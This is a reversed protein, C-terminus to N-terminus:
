VTPLQNEWRVLRRGEWNNDLRGYNNRGRRLAQIGNYANSGNRNHNNNNSPQNSHLSQPDILYEKYKRVFSSYITIPKIVDPVTNGAKISSTIIQLKDKDNKPHPLVFKLPNQTNAVFLRSLTIPQYGYQVKWMFTAKRLTILQSFNLIKHQKYLPDTHEFRTKSYSIIRIAKKMKKEIPELFSKKTCSWNILNYNVHSQVFSYYMKLLCAEDVFYRIRYIMGIGRALKTKIHQIQTKWNLKTDIFVGLYKTSDKEEVLTNNIKIQLTKQTKEM